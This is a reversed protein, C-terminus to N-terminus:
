SAPPGLKGLTDGILGLDHRSCWVLGGELYIRAVQAEAWRAPAVFRIRGLEAEVSCDVMHESEMLRSVASYLREPGDIHLVVVRM